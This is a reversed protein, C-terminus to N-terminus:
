LVSLLVATDRLAMSRLDGQWLPLTWKSKLSSTTFLSCVEVKLNSSVGKKKQRNHRDTQNV